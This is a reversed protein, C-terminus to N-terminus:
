ASLPGWHMRGTRVHGAAALYWSWAAGSGQIELATELEARAVLAVLWDVLLPGPGGRSQIAAPIGLARWAWAVGMGRGCLHGDWSGVRVKRVLLAVQLGAM